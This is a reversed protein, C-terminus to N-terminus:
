ATAAAAAVLCDLGSVQTVADVERLPGQWNIGIRGSSDRGTEWLSDANKRLFDAYAQRGDRAQLHMLNRAFVGKFQEAGEQVDPYRPVLTLTLGCSLPLDLCILGAIRLM